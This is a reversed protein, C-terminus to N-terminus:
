RTHACSWTNAVIQGLNGKPSSLTRNYRALAKRSYTWRAMLPYIFPMWKTQWCLSRSFTLNHTSLPSRERYIWADLDLFMGGARYVLSGTGLDVVRRWTTRTITWNKLTDFTYFFLVLFFIVYKCSTSLEFVAERELRNFPRASEICM